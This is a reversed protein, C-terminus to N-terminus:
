LCHCVPLDHGNGGRESRRAGPPPQKGPEHVPRPPVKPEPLSPETVPEAPRPPLDPSSPPKAPPPTIDPANGPTKPHPTIM